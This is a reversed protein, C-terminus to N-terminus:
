WSGNAEFRVPRMPDEKILHHQTLHLNKIVASRSSRKLFAFMADPNRAEASVRVSRSSADPEIALLVVDKDCLASLESLLTGWPLNLQDAVSKADKMRESLQSLDEPTPGQKLSSRRQYESLQSQLSKVKDLDLLYDRLLWADAVFGVVLLFVWVSRTRQRRSFEFKLKM